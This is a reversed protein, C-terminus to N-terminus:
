GPPRDLRVLPRVVRRGHLAPARDPVVARELLLAVDRVDVVGMGGPPVLMMLQLAGLVAASGTGIPAGPGYVGGIVFSTIPM